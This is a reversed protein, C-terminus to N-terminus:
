QLSNITENNEIDKLQKLLMSQKKNFKAKDVKDLLHSVDGKNIALYTKISSICQVEVYDKNKKENYVLGGITINQIKSITDLFETWWKVPNVRASHTGKYERHTFRILNLVTGGFVDGISQNHLHWFFQAACYDRLQLECRIWHTDSDYGRELAKNYIRILKKSQPSGIVIIEESGKKYTYHRAKTIFKNNEMSNFLKKMSLVPKIDEDEKDDVAVDLRSINGDLMLLTNIFEIWDLQNNYLTELCRCGEGSINLIIYAGVHVRIGVYEYCDKIGYRSFCSKGMNMDNINLKLLDLM